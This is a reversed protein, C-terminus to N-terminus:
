KEESCPPQALHAQHTTKKKTLLKHIEQNNEDSREKNKMSSFGLSECFIIPNHFLIGERLNPNLASTSNLDCLAIAQKVNQSSMVHAHCVDHVNREVSAMRDNCNGIGHKGLVKEPMPTREIRLISDKEM